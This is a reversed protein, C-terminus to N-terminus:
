LNDLEDLLNNITEDKRFINEIISNYLLRLLKYEEIRDASFIFQEIKVGNNNYIIFDMMKKGESQWSDTTVMAGDKFRLMYETDRSTTVWTIKRDITKQYLGNVLDIIKKPINM